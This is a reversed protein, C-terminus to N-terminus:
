ANTRPPRTARSTPHTAFVARVGGLRKADPVQRGSACIPSSSLLKVRLDDKGGVNRTGRCVPMPKGTSGGALQAEGLFYYEDSRLRRARHGQLSPDRRTTARWTRVTGKPWQPPLPSAGSRNPTARAPFRRRARPAAGAGSTSLSVSASDCAPGGSRATDSGLRGRLSGGFRSRQPPPDAFGFRRRRADSRVDVSLLHRRM